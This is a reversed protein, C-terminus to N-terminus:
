PYIAAEHQWHNTISSILYAKVVIYVVGFSPLHENTIPPVSLYIRIQTKRM